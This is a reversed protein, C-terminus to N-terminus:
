AWYTIDVFCECVTILIFIGLALQVIAFLTGIATNEM